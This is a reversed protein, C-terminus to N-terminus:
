TTDFDVGHYLDERFCAYGMIRNDSDPALEFGKDATEYLEQSKSYVDHHRVQVEKMEMPAILM